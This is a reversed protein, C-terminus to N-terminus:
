RKAKEQFKRKAEDGEKNLGGEEECEQM